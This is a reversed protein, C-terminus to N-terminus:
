RSLKFTVSRRDLTVGSTEWGANLWALAQVHSDSNSWWALHRYASAPLGGPVLASVESFPLTLTPASTRKLVDRLGDYKGM